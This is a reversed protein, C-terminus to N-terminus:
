SRAQDGSPIPVERDILADWVWEEITQIGDAPVGFSGGTDKDSLFAWLSAWSRFADNDVGRRLGPRKSEWEKVV